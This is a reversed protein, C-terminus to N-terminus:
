SQVFSLRLYWNLTLQFQIKEICRLSKINFRNDYYFFRFSYLGM